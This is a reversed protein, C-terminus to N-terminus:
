TKGPSVGEMKEWIRQLCTGQQAVIWFGEVVRFQDSIRPDFVGALQKQLGQFRVTALDRLDAWRIRLQYRGVLGFQISQGLGSPRRGIEGVDRAPKSIAGQDFQAITADLEIEDHSDAHMPHSM